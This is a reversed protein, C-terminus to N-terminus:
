RALAGGKGYDNVYFGRGVFRIAPAHLVQELEGDCPPDSFYHVAPHPADMEKRIEVVQGCKKCRYDYCPM